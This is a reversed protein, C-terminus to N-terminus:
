RSACDELRRGMPEGLATRTREIFLESVASKSSSNQDGVWEGVPEVVDGFRRTSVGALMRDM